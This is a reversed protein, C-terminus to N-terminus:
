FVFTGHSVLQNSEEGTILVLFQLFFLEHNHNVTHFLYKSVDDKFFLIKIKQFVSKLLKGFSIRSGPHIWIWIQNRKLVVLSSKIASLSARSVQIWLFGTGWYTYHSGSRQYAGPLGNPWARVIVGSKKKRPTARDSLHPFSFGNTSFFQNEKRLRQM